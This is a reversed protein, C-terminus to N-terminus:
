KLKCFGTIILVLWWRPGQPEMEVPVGSLVIEDFQNFLVFLNVHMKTM